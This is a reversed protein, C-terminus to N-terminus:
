RLFKIEPGYNKGVADGPIDITWAAGTESLSSAFNRLTFNGAPTKVVYIKGRGPIDRAAPMETGGSLELFYQQIQSDSAGSFIAANGTNPLETFTQTGMQITGPTSTNFLDKAQQM